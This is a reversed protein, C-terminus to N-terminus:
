REEDRWYLTTEAHDPGTLRVERLEVATTGRISNPIEAIEDVLRVLARLDGDGEVELDVAIPTSPEGRKPFDGDVTIAVRRLAIGM